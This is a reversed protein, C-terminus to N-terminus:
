DRCPRGDGIALRQRLRDKAGPGAEIAVGLLRRTLSWLRADDSRELLNEASGRGTSWDPEPREPLALWYLVAAGLERVEPSGRLRARWDHAIGRVSRRGLRWARFRDRPGMPDYEYVTAVPVGEGLGAARFFARLAGRVEGLSLEPWTEPGPRDLFERARHVVRRIEEPAAYLRPGRVTRQPSYAGRLLLWATGIGDALKALRYAGEAEAALQPAAGPTMSTLGRVALLERCRNGVLRFGEWPPVEARAGAASATAFQGFWEPDGFLVARHHLLDILGPTVVLGPLQPEPYYGLTVEPDGPARLGALVRVLDARTGAPVIARTVVGLDLDSLLLREEGDWGVAEGAAASGALFVLHVQFPALFEEIRPLVRELALRCRDAVWPERSLAPSNAPPVARRSRGGSSSGLPFRAATLGRDRAGGEPLRSEAADAAPRNTEELDVIEGSKRM